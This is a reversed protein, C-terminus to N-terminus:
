WNASRFFILIAGKPGIRAQLSKTVGQQDPLTFDPVTEGIDPGTSFGLDDDMTSRGQKSGKDSCSEFAAGIMLAFLVLSLSM